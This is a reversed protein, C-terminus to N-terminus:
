TYGILSKRKKDKRKKQKPPQSVRLSCVILVAISDYLDAPLTANQMKFKPSRERKRENEAKSQSPIGKECKSKRRTRPHFKECLYFAFANQPCVCSAALLAPLPFHVIIMTSKILLFLSTEKKSSKIQSEMENVSVNLSIPM